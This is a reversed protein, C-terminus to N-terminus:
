FTGKSSEKERKRQRDRWRGKGKGKEWFARCEFFLFSNHNDGINSFHRRLFASQGRVHPGFQGKRNWAKNVNLATVTSKTPPTPIGLDQECARKCLDQLLAATQIRFILIIKKCDGKSRLTGSCVARCMQSSHTFSSECRMSYLSIRLSLWM